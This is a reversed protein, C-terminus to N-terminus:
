CQKWTSATKWKLYANRRVACVASHAVTFNPEESQFDSAMLDYM